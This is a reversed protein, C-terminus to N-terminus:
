MKGNAWECPHTWFRGSYINHAQACILPTTNTYDHQKIDDSRHDSQDCVNEIFRRRITATNQQTYACITCM